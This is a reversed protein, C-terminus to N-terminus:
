HETIAETRSAIIATLEEDSLERPSRASITTSVAQPPKGHARDLISNSALARAAPPAKTDRMIAALTSIAEVTYQRAV